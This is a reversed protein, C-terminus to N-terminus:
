FGLFRGVQAFFNQSVYPQPPPPPPRYAARAAAEREKRDIDTIITTALAKSAEFDIEIRRREGELSELELSLQTVEKAAEVESTEVSQWMEKLRKGEQVLVKVEDCKSEPLPPLPQPMEKEINKLTLSFEELEKKTALSERELRTMSEECGVLAEKRNKQYQTMRALLEKAYAQTKQHREKELVQDFEMVDQLGTTVVEMRGTITLSTQM